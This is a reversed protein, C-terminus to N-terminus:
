KTGEKMREATLQAYRYESNRITNMVAEPFTDCPLKGTLVSYRTINKEATAYDPAWSSVFELDKGAYGCDRAVVAIKRKEDIDVDFNYAQM